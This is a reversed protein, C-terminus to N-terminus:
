RNQTKEISCYTVLIIKVLHTKTPESRDDKVNEWRLIKKFVVAEDYAKRLMELIECVNKCLKM